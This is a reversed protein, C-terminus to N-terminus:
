ASQPTYPRPATYKMLFAFLKSSLFNLNVVKVCNKLDKCRKSYYDTKENSQLKRVKLIKNWGDCFFVHYTDRINIVGKSIKSFKPSKDNTPEKCWAGYPCFSPKEKCLEQSMDRIIQDEFLKVATQNIEINPDQM